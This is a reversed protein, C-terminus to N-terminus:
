YLILSMVRPVFLYKLRYTLSPFILPTPTTTPDKLVADHDDNHNGPQNALGARAGM